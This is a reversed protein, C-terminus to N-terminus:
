CLLLSTKSNCIWHNVLSHSVWARMVEGALGGVRYSRPASCKNFLVPVTSSGVPTVVANGLIYPTIECLHTVFRM